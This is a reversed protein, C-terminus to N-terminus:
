SVFNNSVCLKKQKKKENEIQKISKFINESHTHALSLTYTPKKTLTYM